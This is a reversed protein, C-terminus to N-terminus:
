YQKYLQVATLLSKLIRRFKAIDSDNAVTVVTNCFWPDGNAKFGINVYVLESTHRTTIKCKLPATKDIQDLIIKSEVRLLQLLTDICPSASAM